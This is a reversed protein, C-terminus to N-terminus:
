RADLVVEDHASFEMMSSAEADNSIETERVEHTDDSEGDIRDISPTRPHGVALKVSSLATNAM